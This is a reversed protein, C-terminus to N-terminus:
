IKAIYDFVAHLENKIDDTTELADFEHEGFWAIGDTEEQNQKYELSGIPEVLYILTYHQECGKPWLTSVARKNPYESTIRKQYNEKSIWHLNTLFPNPVYESVDSDVKLGYNIAKVRVDTEEWFEREAAQHPLEDEDVHGGPPLWWGVKKHKVLLVKDKSVLVGAATLCLKADILQLKAM